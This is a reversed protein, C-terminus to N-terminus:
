CVLIISYVAIIPNINQRHFAVFVDFSALKKGVSKEKGFTVVICFM